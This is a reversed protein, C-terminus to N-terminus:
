PTGLKLIKIEVGGFLCLGTLTLQGVPSPPGVRKSAVGGFVARTQINVAWDEPVLLQVGGLSAIINITAGDDAITAHRLDIYSSGFVAWVRGGRFQQSTIQNESGGFFSTMRLNADAVAHKAM